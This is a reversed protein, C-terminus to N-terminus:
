RDTTDLKALRERFEELSINGSNPDAEYEALRERVIELHWEPVPIDEPHALIRDWLSQVYDLKEDISLDDFGPPPNPLARAM